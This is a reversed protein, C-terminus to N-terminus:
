GGKFSISYRPELVEYSCFCACLYNSLLCVVFSTRYQAGGAGKETARFGLASRPRRMTPNKLDCVNLCVCMRYPEESRIMLEDCLGTLLCCVFCNVNRFVRDTGDEYASLYSSYTPKFFESASSNGLLFCVVNLVRRFNSILFM